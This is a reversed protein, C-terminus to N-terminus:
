TVKVEDLVKRVATSLSKITLPKRIFLGAGLGLALNVRENTAFGSILLAKQPSRIELARRYTEAGDIGGPLVMDLILLAFEERRLVRLGEEGSLVATVLYGLKELLVRTVERQTLDDDVVLIKENGGIIEAPDITESSERTIPFYLYFTTGQREESHCDVFGHHDEVVSHVVSLGLGSGRKKTATKTTFFPDFIRPLLDKPIGCGSDSITLKVYEGRPVRGYRGAIDDAYYNETKIRLVGRDDMADFANLVLNSVVRYIQSPGGRINFLTGSLETEISIGRPVDSFQRIVQEVTVNLNLTEQTYYGRRGLTLLQQNIDALQQAAKEIQDILDLAPHDRPLEERILSPYAMLPGLLNNFDHSVQGAVRGATELRQARSAFGQLRRRETIDRFVLVVGIVNDNKDRIPAGSDAIIRERGNKSILIANDVLGYFTVSDLIREVPSSRKERNDERITKFVDILPRGIAEMELWGTLAEGVHNISVIRGKKDTAIVGDGISHLTVSLREKEAALAEEANKRETTDQMTEIAGVVNGATDRIPAATLYIWRGNDGLLPILDEVELGGEIVTSERANNYLSDILSKEANDLVLDALVPRESNYFASWARCTGILNAAPIGTLNECANNWHTVRHDEDIVFAPLSNGQVIQALRTEGEKIVNEARKRVTIDINLNVGCEVYGDRAFIPFMNGMRWGIEGQKNRDQWEAGKITKGAFVNRITKGTAEHTYPTVILDYASKGVAESKSYGYIQEAGKNWGLITGNKDFTFYAIPMNEVMNRLFEESTKLAEETNKRRTIDRCLEICGKINGDADFVPYGRIYWIRGDPSTQEAEHPKGTQFAKVVPCEPCPETRQHWLEYCHRGLLEPLELDLSRAAAENAWVVEMEQNHYAFLEVISNLINNKEKESERLTNEIREQKRFANSIMLGFVMFIILLTLRTLLGHASVDAILNDWFSGKYLFIQDVLADLIWVLLGLFFFLYFYFRSKISKLLM